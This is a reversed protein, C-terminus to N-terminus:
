PGLGGHRVVWLERLPGRRRKACAGYPDFAGQGEDGLEEEGPGADGREAHGGSVPFGAAGLLGPLPAGPGALDQLVAAGGAAPPAHPGGQGSQGAEAM